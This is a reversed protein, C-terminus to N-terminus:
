MGWVHIIKNGVTEDRQFIKEEWTKTKSPDFIVLHGESANMTDMYEATQTLGEPLTKSTRMVKLEFLIRQKGLEVTLDVRGRGLAYERHVGGGGNVVRQLYAMMLLHPGSEKFAFQEEWIASNIRYFDVWDLMIKHGNLTGDANLYAPQQFTMTQQTSYVLARPFVEQYIPNAITMDTKKIMGLDRIYQLDDEPFMRVGTEGAIIADIIPRVRNETLKHFLQDIHTDRRLILIERARQMTELTIPKSRDLVDRFCAQYALANVLWPQGQTQEFAYIIADDSFIQGTAQTHQLYLARVEDLSFNNLTLSEAKINFASGGTIIENDIKSHIRYDRVDRLGILCVSQPFHHPRKAYGARLQRLVSILTDGILADIEDIFLLLPKQSNMSWYGLFRGLETGSVLRAQEPSTFFNLVPHTNGFTEQTAARLEDLIVSQARAVDNHWAQGPEVNVYLAEYTGTANLKNVLWEMATTKGSQRPAHLIFYKKEEILQMLDAENMRFPLFYHDKIKIPGAICFTKGM